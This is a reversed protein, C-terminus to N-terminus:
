VLGTKSLTIRVHTRNNHRDVSWEVKSAKYPLSDFIVIDDKRPVMMTEGIDFAPETAGELLYELSTPHM